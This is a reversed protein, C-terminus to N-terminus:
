QNRTKLQYDKYAQYQANELSINCISDRNVFHLNLCLEVVKHCLRNPWIM